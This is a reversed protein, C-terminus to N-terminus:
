GNSYRWKYGGTKTREEKCVKIINSSQVCMEKSAVGVSPFTKIFVGDLILLSYM